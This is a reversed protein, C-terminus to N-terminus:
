NDRSRIQSSIKALKAQDLRAVTKHGEIGLVLALVGFFSSTVTAAIWDLTKGSAGGGMKYVVLAGLFLAAAMVPRTHHAHPRRGNVRLTLQRIGHFVYVASGVVIAAVTSLAGTAATLLLTSGFLAPAWFAALNGKNAAVRVFGKVVAMSANAFVFGLLYVHLPFPGIQTSTISTGWIGRIVLLVTLAGISEIQNLMDLQFKGTEAQEWYTFAATATVIVSAAVSWFPPAGLTIVTICVVYTASLLDLGHDLYEGLSSCRNVRRAHSGDANDCWNYLNVLIAIVFFPWGHDVDAALISVVLGILAIVHGAHTIANPDLSRPLIPLLPEVLFKKYPRLLLSRDQVTYVLAATSPSSHSDHPHDDNGLIESEVARVASAREEPVGPDM